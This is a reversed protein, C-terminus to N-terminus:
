IKINFVAAEPRKINKGIAFPYIFVAIAMGVAFALLAALIALGIGLAWFLIKM